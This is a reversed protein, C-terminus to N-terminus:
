HKPNFVDRLKVYGKKNHVNHIAELHDQYRESIMFIPLHTM